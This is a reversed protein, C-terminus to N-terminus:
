TDDSKNFLTLIVPSIPSQHSEQQENDMNFPQFVNLVSRALDPHPGWHEQVQHLAGPFRPGQCHGPLSGESLPDAGARGSLGAWESCPPHM